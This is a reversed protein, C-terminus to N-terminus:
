RMGPPMKDLGLGPTRRAPMARALARARAQARVNFVITAALVLLCFAAVVLAVDTISQIM